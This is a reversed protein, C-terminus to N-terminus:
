DGYVVLGRPLFLVVGEERGEIDVSAAPVADIGVSEQDYVRLVVIFYDTWAGAAGVGDLVSGLDVAAVYDDLVLVLPLEPERDSRLLDSEDGVVGDVDGGGEPADE